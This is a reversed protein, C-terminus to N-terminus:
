MALAKAERGSPVMTGTPPDSGTDVGVPGARLVAVAVPGVAPWTVMTGGDFPVCGLM